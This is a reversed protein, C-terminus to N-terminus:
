LFRDYSESRTLPLSKERVEFPISERVYTVSYSDQEVATMVLTKGNVSIRYSFKWPYRDSYIGTVIKSKHDALYEGDSYWYAGNGIRQYMEFKGDASFSLWIDESVGSEEASYHWEGAMQEMMYSDDKGCGASLFLAVSLAFINIIRRMDNKNHIFIM